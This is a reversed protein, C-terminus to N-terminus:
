RVVFEGRCGDSVWIGRRDYGWTRNYYCGARSLQRRMEVHHSYGISCYHHDHGTSECTVTRAGPANYYYRNNRSDYGRSDYTYDHDDSHKEANNAIAAIVGAALIAGAVKEGKTAKEGNNNHEYSADWANGKYGTQFDARCGNAVWIGRRDYGWTDGEWCGAHSLQDVLVVGRSTDADCYHHDHGTSECRIVDASLASSGAVVAAVLVIGLRKM